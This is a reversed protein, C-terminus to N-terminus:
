KKVQTDLWANLQTQTTIKGDGSGPDGRKPDPTSSTSAAKASRAQEKAVADAIAKQMLDEFHMSKYTDILNVDAELPNMGAAILDQTFKTLDKDELGFQTKVQQLGLLTVRERESREIEANKAELTQLRQLMEVPVNANQAQGEVVKAQLAAIMDAESAKPDIGLIEAVGKLTNKFSQNQQRLYIFAQQAKDAEPEPKPEAPPDVEPPDTEPPDTEPPDTEPPDAETKPDPPDTESSEVTAPDIGFGELLEDMTPEKEM